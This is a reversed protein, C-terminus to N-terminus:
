RKPPRRLSYLLFLYSTAHRVLPFRLVAPCLADCVKLKGVHRARFLFQRNLNSKEIMDMDTVYVQGKGATGLGMQVGCIVADAFPETM